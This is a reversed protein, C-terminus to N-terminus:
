YRDEVCMEMDGMRYMHINMAVESPVCTCTCVYMYVSTCTAYMYVNYMHLGTTESHLTGGEREYVCGKVNERKGGMDGEGRREGRREREGGEREGRNRM